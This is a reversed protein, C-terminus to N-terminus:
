SLVADLRKGSTNHATLLLRPHRVRRRGNHGPLHGTGASRRVHGSSVAVPVGSYEAARLVALVTRRLKDANRRTKKGCSAHACRLTHEPSM